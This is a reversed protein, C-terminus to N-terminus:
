QQKRVQLVRMNNALMASRQRIQEATLGALETPLEAEAENWIAASDLAGGGAPTAAPAADGSSSM